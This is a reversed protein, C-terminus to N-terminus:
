KATKINIYYFKDIKKKQKTIKHRSTDKGQRLDFFYKRGFIKSNKM